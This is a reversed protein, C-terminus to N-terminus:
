VDILSAPTVAIVGTAPSISIGIASRSRRHGHQSAHGL